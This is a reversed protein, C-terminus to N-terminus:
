FIRKKFFKTCFQCFRRWRPYFRPWACIQCKAKHARLTVCYHIVRPDLSKELQELNATDEAYLAHEEQAEYNIKFLPFPMQKRTNQLDLLLKM